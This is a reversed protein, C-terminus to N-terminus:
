DNEADTPNGPIAQPGFLAIVTSRIDASTQKIDRQLQDASGAHESGVYGMRRALFRFAPSDTAPVTLDKASGRLMRLGNILRRMFAYGERLKQSQEESIVGLEALAELAKHVRSTRLAAHAHGYRLQLIQTAYEADVLAGPAYKANFAGDATKKQRWQMRRMEWLEDLDIPPPDTFLLENRLDIVQKGFGEDGAVPRMRVLAVREFSAADGDPGYYERFRDVAVALPSNGGYPRLRFDVRFIGEQKAEIIQGVERALLNFFEGAHITDAGDTQGHADYVLLLEIDSAYGLAAGGLKGLGFIAWKAEHPRGYQEAVNDYALRAAASVVAEALATLHEAFTRFDMEPRLIQDLDILYAEHDKFRNLIRRKERASTGRSLEQALRARITMAPKAIPGAEVERHLIPGLSEYQLRIFDEWIFDSAGLLRGLNRMARPKSLAEMWDAANDGQVLDEVMKEFRSLATYPDPSRDLFYTFQKTLLVTLKIRDLGDPDSVPRGTSDVFGIEDVAEGGVTAIRVREIQMGLLAMANSLSYLFAPTDQGAVKLHTRRPDDTELTVSVPYLVPSDDSALQGLTRTVRDNVQHRAEAPGDQPDAEVMGLTAKLEGALEDAFWSLDISPDITGVFRDVIKRRHLVNVKAKHSRRRRPAHRRSKSHDTDVPATRDYTFVDGSDVSFGLGALLGTILSFESPYDLGVIVCAVTRDDQATVAVRVPNDTSLGDIWRVHEAIQELTFSAFYDDELRDLHHRIKVPDVQRCLTQLQELSPRM